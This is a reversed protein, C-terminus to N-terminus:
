PTTINVWSNTRLGSSFSMGSGPSMAAGSKTTPDTSIKGGKAGAKAAQIM